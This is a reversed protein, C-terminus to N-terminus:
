YSAGAYEASALVNLMRLYHDYIGAQQGSNALTPWMDTLRFVISFFRRTRPNQSKSYTHLSLIAAEVFARKDPANQFVPNALFDALGTIADPQNLLLLTLDNSGKAWRAANEHTCDAYIRQLRDQVTPAEHGLLVILNAGILFILSALIFNRM